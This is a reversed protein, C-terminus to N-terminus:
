IEIVKLEIGERGSYKKECVLRAVQGDDFYVLGNMADLVLKALNDVDPRSVKYLMDLDALLKDNKSLIKPHAYNFLIKVIVPKSTIQINEKSMHTRVLFQIDSEAQCTKQTNYVNGSRTMRPRAKPTPTVDLFIDLM